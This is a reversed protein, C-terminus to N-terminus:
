IQYVFLVVIFFNILKNFPMIGKPLNIMKYHHHILEPGLIVVKKPQYTLPILRPEVFLEVAIPVAVSFKVVSLLIFQLPASFRVSQCSEDRYKHVM